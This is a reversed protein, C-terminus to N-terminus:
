LQRPIRANTPDKPLIIPRPVAHCGANRRNHLDLDSVPARHLRPPYKGCCKNSYFPFLPFSFSYHDRGVRGFLERDLVRLKGPEM